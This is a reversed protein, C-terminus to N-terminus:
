TEGKIGHAAEIDRVFDKALKLDNIHFIQASWLDAIEEDTLPKRQPPTTISDQGSIYAIRLAQLFGIEEPDGHQNSLWEEFAVPEQKPKCNCPAPKPPMSMLMQTLSACWDQHQEPQALAEEIRQKLVDARHMGLEHPKVTKQVWETKDLWVELAKKYNPEPQALAEKIATFTEKYLVEGTSEFHKMGLDELAELALKLAEDKTM